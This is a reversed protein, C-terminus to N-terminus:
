EFCRCLHITHPCLSHLSHCEQGKSTRNIHAQIRRLFCYSGSKYDLNVKSLTCLKCHHSYMSPTSGQYSVQFRCICRMCCLMHQNCCHFLYKCLTCPLSRNRRSILCMDVTCLLSDQTSQDICKHCTHHLYASVPGGPM